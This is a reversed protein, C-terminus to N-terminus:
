GHHILLYNLGELVLKPRAFIENKLEKAFDIKHRSCDVIKLEGIQTNLQRVYGLIEHVVSQYVGVQMSQETSKGPFTVKNNFKILPLASTFENMARFRMDLGPSIIGGNFTSKSLWDITLCTGLDVILWDSDKSISYAGVATAIRDPGLTEPTDYNLEIPMDTSDSLYHRPELLEEIESDTGTKSVLVKPRFDAVIQKFHDSTFPNYYEIEREGEYLAAKTSTNGIDICLNM